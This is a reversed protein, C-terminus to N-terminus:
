TKVNINAAKHDHTPATIHLSVTSIKHEFTTVTIFKMQMTVHINTSWSCCVTSSVGLQVMKNKHVKYVSVYTTLGLNPRCLEHWKSFFETINVKRHVM